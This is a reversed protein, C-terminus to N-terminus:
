RPMVVPMKWCITVRPTKRSISDVVEFMGDFGVSM